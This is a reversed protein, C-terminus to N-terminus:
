RKFKSVQDSTLIGSNMEPRRGVAAALLAVLSPTFILALLYPSLIPGYAIEIGEAGPNGDVTNTTGHFFDASNGSITDEVNVPLLGTLTATLVPIEGEREVGLVEISAVAGTLYSGAAIAVATVMSAFFAAGSRTKFIMVGVLSLLVAGGLFPALRWLAGAIANAFVVEGVYTSNITAPFLDPTQTYDGATRLEVSGDAEILDTVRHVYIRGDAERQHAILDGVSFSEIPAERSLVLSGTPLEPSMSGSILVLPKVGTSNAAVFVGALGFLLVFIVAVGLRRSNKPQPTM